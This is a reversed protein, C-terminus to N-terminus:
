PHKVLLQDIRQLSEIDLTGITQELRLHSLILNHLSATLNKSAQYKTAKATLVDLLEKLGLKHSQETMDLFAKTSEVNARNALILKYTHEINRVEIRASLKAQEIAQRAQLRAARKKASAQNIKATTLGGSYLAITAYIGINFDKRDQFNQSFNTNYNSFSKDTYGAKLNIKPLHGKKQAQLEKKAIKVQAIAKLVTLNNLSAQQEYQQINPQINIKKNFMDMNSTLSKLNNLEVGTLNILNEHAIVLSNQYKISTSKALNYSSKTQLVDVKSALGLNASQLTKQWQNKNSFEQAQSLNLEMQALLTKFYSEALRIILDQQAIQLEYNAQQLLYQAQGYIAWSVPEYLPQKLNVGVSFTNVDASNKNSDNIVYSSDISIKPLISSRAINLNTINADYEAHAQALKADHALALKYVDILSYAAYINASINTYFTFFIITCIITRMITCSSKFINKM